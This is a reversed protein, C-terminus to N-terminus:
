IKQTYDILKSIDKLQASGRMFLFRLDLRNYWTGHIKAIKHFCGLLIVIREILVIVYLTIQFIYVIDNNM